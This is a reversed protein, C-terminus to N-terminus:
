RCGIRERERSLRPLSWSSLDGRVLFLFNTQLVPLSSDALVREGSWQVGVGGSRGLAM